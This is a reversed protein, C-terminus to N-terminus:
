TLRCSLEAILEEPTAEAEQIWPHQLAEVVRLRDNPAVVDLLEALLKRYKASSLNFGWFRWFEKLKCARVGGVRDALCVDFFTKHREDNIVFPTAKPDEKPTGRWMCHMKKWYGRQIIADIHILIFLMVGCQFIDSSEANYCPEASDDATQEPIAPDNYMATGVDLSTAEALDTGAGFDCLKIMVKSDSLEVLVNEIKIDRHYLLHKHLFGVGKLVQVWIARAIPEIFRRKGNKARAMFGYLDGAECYELAQFYMEGHSEGAHTVSAYDLQVLKVVHPSIEPLKQYRKLM